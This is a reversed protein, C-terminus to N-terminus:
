SYKQTATPLLINHQSSLYGAVAGFARTPEVTGTTRANVHIHRAWHRWRLARRLSLLRPGGAELRVQTAAGPDVSRRRADVATASGHCRRWWGCRGHVSIYITSTKVDKYVQRTEQTKVTLKLFLSRPIFSSYGHRDKDAVLQHKISVSPHISSTKRM